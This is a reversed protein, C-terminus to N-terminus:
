KNTDKEIWCEVNVLKLKYDELNEINGADSYIIDDFYNIEGIEPNEVWAWGEVELNGSIAVFNIQVNECDKNSINKLTGQLNPYNGGETTLESVQWENNSCGCFCLLIFAILLIKKM